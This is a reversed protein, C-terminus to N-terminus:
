GSAQATVHALAQSVDAMRPPKSLCADVCPSTEAAEEPTTGWGTLLIVPTAPSITKVQRALQRGDMFPMGLDTIVVNFPNSQAQATRLLDLASAGSEALTVQAQLQQLVDRMTERLLPEDDVCLVRLGTCPASRSASAAPLTPPERLPFVLRFTAGQGPESRIDIQGEHRQVMGYVMALGLGSGGQHRKTSYFPELCRRRTTEDMGLGTDSVQLLLYKFAGPGTSGDFGSVAQTTVTITGGEPLADTSNLLLNTLGERLESPQAYLWPLPEALETKIEVVAGHSQPINRWRPRTLEITQRVLANLDCLQLQEKADRRRYFESMRTVIQAIDEGATCVHRLQRRGKDSLHQAPDELLLASFAIVPSLANNIDHAVGSAMQGLARLREQQVVSEQTQRLEEYAKQLDSHLRTQHFLSRCQAETTLVQLQLAEKESNVSEIKRAIQESAHRAEELVLVIMSVAIFVQLVASVLFGAVHLSEYQQSFPYTLLYLGWLWFGLFMLDIGVFHQQRRLRYFCLGAYLSALGVLAFVPLLVPLEGEALRSGAFSWVLMFVLFLAFLIQSIPKAMFRLGGWFLFVASVGICWERLIFVPTGLKPNPVTIGMTLWLAYFLWAVTWITFYDRKTYRNLYWFLVVLVWVSLLSVMLAGRLYERAFEFQRGIIEM